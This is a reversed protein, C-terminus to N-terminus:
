IHTQFFTQKTHKHTDTESTPAPGFIQQALLSLVSSLTSSVSKFLTFLRIRGGSPTGAVRYNSFHGRKKKKLQITQKIYVHDTKNIDHKIPKTKASKNEKRLLHCM